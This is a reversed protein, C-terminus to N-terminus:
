QSNFFSKIILNNTSLNYICLLTLKQVFPEFEIIKMNCVYGRGYPIDYSGKKKLNNLM